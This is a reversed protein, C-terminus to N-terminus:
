SLTHSDLCSVRSKTQLQNPRISSFRMLLLQIYFRFHSSPRVEPTLPRFPRPMILPIVVASTTLLAVRWWTVPDSAPDFPHPTQTAYPWVDLFSYVSFDALLLLALQRSTIDRWRPVGSFITFLGLISVYVQDLFM